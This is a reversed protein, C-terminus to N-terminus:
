EPLTELNSVKKAKREDINSDSKRKTVRFASPRPLTRQINARGTNWDVTPDNLANEFIKEMWEPDDRMTRSNIWSPYSNTLLTKCTQFIHIVLEVNRTWLGCGRCRRFIMSNTMLPIVPLWLNLHIKSFKTSHQKSTEHREHM